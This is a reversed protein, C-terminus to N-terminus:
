QLSIAMTINVVNGPVKNYLMNRCNLLTEKSSSEKRIIGISQWLGNATDGYFTTSFLLAVDFYNGTNDYIYNEVIKPYSSLIFQRGIEALKTLGRLDSEAVTNAGVAIYTRQSNFPNSNQGAMLELIARTGEKTLANNEVTFSNSVINNKYDEENAYEKITTAIRWKVQEHKSM